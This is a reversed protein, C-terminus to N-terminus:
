PDDRDGAAEVGTTAAEVDVDMEIAGGSSSRDKPLPLALPICNQVTHGDSGSLDELLEANNASDNSAM